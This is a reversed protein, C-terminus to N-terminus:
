RTDASKASITLLTPNLHGKHSASHQSCCHNRWTQPQSVPSPGCPAPALLASPQMNVYPVLTVVLSLLPHITSSICRQYYPLSSTSTIHESSKCQLIILCIEVLVRRCVQYATQDLCATPRLTFVLVIYYMADICIWRFTESHTPRCANRTDRLM